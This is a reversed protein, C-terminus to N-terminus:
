IWGKRWGKRWGQWWGQRWTVLRIVSSESACSARKREFVRVLAMMIYRWPPGPGMPGGGGVRPRDPGWPAPLSARPAPPGLQVLEVRVAAQRPAPPAGAPAPAQVPQALRQQLVPPGLM